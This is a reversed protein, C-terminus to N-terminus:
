RSHREVLLAENLEQVNSPKAGHFAAVLRDVAVVGAGEVIQVCTEPLLKMHIREREPMADFLRMAARLLVPDYDAPTVLQVPHYLLTPTGGPKETPTTHAPRGPSKHPRGRGVWM